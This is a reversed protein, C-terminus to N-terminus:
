RVAPTGEPTTAIIADLTEDAPQKALDIKM